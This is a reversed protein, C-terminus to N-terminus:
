GIHQVTNKWEKWGVYVLAVFVCFACLKKWKNKTDEHNISKAMFFVFIVISAPYLM